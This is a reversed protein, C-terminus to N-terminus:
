SLSGALDKDCREVVRAIPKEWEDTKNANELLATKAAESNFKGDVILKTENIICDIFCKKLLAKFFEDKRCKEECDSEIQPRILDPVVCCKGSNVESWITCDPEIKKCKRNHEEVLDCGKLYDKFSVCNKILNERICHFFKALDLSLNKTSEYECKDVSKNLEPQWKPNFRPFYIMGYSKVKEKDFTKDRTFLSSSTFCAEICTKMRSLDRNKCKGACIKEEFGNQRYSIDCCQKLSQMESPWNECSDESYIAAIFASFWLYKLASKM